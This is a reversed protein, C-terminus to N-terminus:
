TTPFPAQAGTEMVSNFFPLRALSSHRKPNGSSLSSIAGSPSSPAEHGTGCTSTLPHGPLPKVTACPLEPIRFPHQQNLHSYNIFVSIQRTASAINLIYALKFSGGLFLNLCLYSVFWAPLLFTGSAQIWSHSAAWCLSVWALRSLTRCLEQAAPSQFTPALQTQLSATQVAGQVEATEKGIELTGQHHLTLLELRREKSVSSSEAQCAPWFERPGHSEM